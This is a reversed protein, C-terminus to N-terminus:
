RPPSRLFASGSRHARKRSFRTLPNTHELTEREDVTRAVAEVRRAPEGSNKGLRSIARRTQPSGVASGSCCDESKTSAGPLLECQRSVGLRPTGCPTSVWWLRQRTSFWGAEPSKWLMPNSDASTRTGAM